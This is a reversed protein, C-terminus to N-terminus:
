AHMPLIGHQLMEGKHGGQTKVNDQVHVGVPGPGFPCFRAGGSPGRQWCQIRPYWPPQKWRGADINAVRCLTQAGGPTPHHLIEDMLRVRPCRAPAERHRQLTEDMLRARPCRGPADSHREQLHGADRPAVRCPSRVAEPQPHGLVVKVLRVVRSARSPTPPKQRWHAADQPEVRCPSRVAGPPSHRLVVNVVRVVRCAASPTPSANRRHLLMCQEAKPHQM